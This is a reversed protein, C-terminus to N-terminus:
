WINGAGPTYNQSVVSSSILTDCQVVGSFKSVAASVSLLGANVEVASANLIVRSAANVTIGNTKLEVSNGNSDTLVVVGPGDELVLKQGGPTEIIISERGRQDDLTIRVGNRSRVLKKDNDADMKAPPPNAGNWLGGLVYPRTLDGQEFAILVEDDVDPMFWTGRNAGAMLTATRAWVEHGSEGAVLVPPLRVKVRGGNAPDVNDVVIAAYVGGHDKM